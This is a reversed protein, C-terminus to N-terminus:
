TIELVSLIVDVSDAASSVAYLVDNQEVVLKQDGGIPVLTGGTPVLADKIIYANAVGNNLFVSVYLPTGTVNALTMGIVTSQIGSTTPSYVANATSGVGVAIYNKFSNAM